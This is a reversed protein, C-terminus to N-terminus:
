INLETHGIQKHYDNIASVSFRGFERNGINIVIDGNSATQTTGGLPKVAMMLANILSEMGQQMGGGKYATESDAFSNQTSTFTTPKFTEPMEISNDTWDVGLYEMADNILEMARAPKEMPLVLEKKNGEGMRYFGEQNIWGGNEYGHGHGIVDLMGLAGYRHKAYNIGALLNDLANWINGHGKHKYANFTGPKVQVLGMANGDALGDNGGMVSPNGSSETQIQRLWANIYAPSTPLKNMRLAKMVTGSWKKSGGGSGAKYINGSGMSGNLHLHDYHDNDPWRVWKGSSGTGSLGMRDRVKGQTIVYAVKSPFNNFAWNAPDFYKSSGNMSAPYALDIAQHKGHYYPDGERFGSSIRMGPFKNMVQRAVDVLYQYVNNGSMKGDFTGGNMSSLYEDYGKNFHKTIFSKAGDAMVGVSGKAMDLTPQVTDKMDVFKSIALNLLKSPNSAYSWVDSAIKKAGNWKEKFWSGVGSAYHPIIERATRAGNLVSTGRPIDVLLNRKKPFLGTKGDPTHYAEQFNAGPADNVLALGGPHSGIGQAYKPIKWEGLKKAASKAGVKNLVWTIGKIVGNVAGGIPKMIGNAISSSAKKISDVGKKLGKAIKGPLDSAWGSIKDFVSHVNEKLASMSGGINSRMKSFASSAHYRANSTKTNIKSQVNDWTDRTKTWVESFRNRTNDRLANISSAAKEKASSTKDSIKTQFNDWTKKTNSGINSWKDKTNEWMSKTHKSVFGKAKGWKESTWNSVNGWTESTKKSIDKWKDSVNKKAEEGKDKITTGTKGWLEKSKDLVGKTKDSVTKKITSWGTKISEIPKGILDDIGQKLGEMLFGGLEAFVTSPSHIGFLDKFWNVIPNFIHEEMFTGICSMKDLLGGTLGDWIDKGFQVFADVIDGFSYVDTNLLKMLADSFDGLFDIFGAVESFAFDFIPNIVHDFFWKIPTKLTKITGGLVELVGALIDFFAPLANEIVISALPLVAHKFFWVLADGITDVIPNIAKVLREFSKALPQLDVKRSWEELAETIKEVKELLTEVVDLFGDIIGKGAESAFMKKFAKAINGITLFINTLIELIHGAIREGTGDNWAERFATAIEHLLELINNWMDFISQIMKTGRNNDDWAQRFAKAVDGVIYLVDGLLILLNSVFREGTGNTWVDMFSNGISKVLGWIENLAYKFSDMVRKGQSDWAKKIPSFFDSWLKKAKAAWGAIWDPQSPTPTNFDIGPKKSNDKDSDDAVDDKMSLTNIEDFGMLSRQLQKVKEKTKTASNGTENMAQVSQYLGSAGQKAVQYTTGFLTAIFQALYATVQALGRMLANLAPMIVEYIPYFATLLNVKVQNLSNNFEDNAKMAQWTGEAMKKLGQFMLGYFVFTRLMMKMQTGLTFMGKRNRALGKDTSSTAKHMSNKFKGAESAVKALATKGGTGFLRMITSLRSVNGRSQEVNRGFRRIGSGATETQRSQRGLTTNIKRLAPELMKARDETMAYAKQLADNDRVLKDMKSQQKSIENAIKLSGKTDATGKQGSFGGTPMKAESYERQLTKLRQRMPEIKRENESMKASIKDLSDPITDAETKLDRFMLKAQDRLKTMQAEANAIQTDYKIVDKQNGSESANNKQSRLYAVQAQKSNAQKSKAIIENTMAEIDKSVNKRSKAVGTSLGKSINEGSSESQKEMLELQKKMTKQMNELQKGFASTANSLNLSKEIKGTEDNVTQGTMKMYKKAMPAIKAFAQEMKEANADIIVELTELEITMREM